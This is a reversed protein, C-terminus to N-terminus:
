IAVGRPPTVRSAAEGRAEALQHDDRSTLRHAHGFRNESPAPKIPLGTPSARLALASRIIREQLPDLPM